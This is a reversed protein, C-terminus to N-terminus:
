YQAIAKSINKLNKISIKFSNPKTTKGIKKLLFLILIKTMIKKIM